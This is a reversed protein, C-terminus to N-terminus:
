NRGSLQQALPLSTGLHTFSLGGEGLMRLTSPFAPMSFGTHLAIVEMRIKLLTTVEEIDEVMLGRAMTKATDPIFEVCSLMEDLLPEADRFHMKGFLTPSATLQAVAAMGEGEPVEVGAKTLALLLRIAWKEAQMAPMETILFTKGKDRGEATIQLTAIKKM